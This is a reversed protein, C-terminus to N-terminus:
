GQDTLVQVFSRHKKKEGSARSMCLLLSEKWNWVASNQIVASSAKEWYYLAPAM